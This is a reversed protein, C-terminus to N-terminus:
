GSSRAITPVRRDVLQRRCCRANHAFEAKGAPVHCLSAAREWHAAAEKLEAPSRSGVEWPARAGGIGGNLVNARMQNTIVENPVARVVRASLARLGEDNWWDPKAVEDCEEDTLLDFACATAEAWDESGYPYREKAELCRQAAEVLHGSSSLMNGLNIYPTPDDPKLAIAERYARAARRWDEKSAHRAGAAMLKYYTDSTQEAIRAQVEAAERNRQQVGDEQSNRQEKMDKHSVEHFVKHFVEHDRASPTPPCYGGEIPDPPENLELRIRRRFSVPPSPPPSLPPPSPPPSPPPPPPLPCIRRKSSGSFMLTRATSSATGMPSVEYDFYGDLEHTFSLRGSFVQTLLHQLSSLLM